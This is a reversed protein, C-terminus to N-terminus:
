EGVAYERFASEFRAAPDRVTLLFCPSQEKWLLSTSCGSMKRLPPNSRCMAAHTMRRYHKHSAALIANLTNHSMNRVGKSLEHHREVLTESGTAPNALPWCSSINTHESGRCHALERHSFPPLIAQARAQLDKLLPGCNTEM